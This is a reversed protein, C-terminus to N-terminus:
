LDVSFLNRLRRKGKATVIIARSHKVRRIWDTEFMKDLFAAGLAGALHSRRESWDLCARAFVRRAGRLEAADIGLSGFWTTGKPTLAFRSGERGIIRKEILKETLLVGVKGALHDYCTRCYRISDVQDASPAPVGMGAPLLNAIGEVAYAAERSAFRYYRHRGQKEVAVVGSDLLKNLHMSASQPSVDACLALETATLAKNGLLHWLMLARSKDGILGAIQGFHKDADM